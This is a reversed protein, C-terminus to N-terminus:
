MAHDAPIRRDHAHDQHCWHTRAARVAKAAAQHTM